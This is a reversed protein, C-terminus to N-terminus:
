ARCTSGASVRGARRAERLPRAMDLSRPFQNSQVGVLMVMGADAANIQDALGEIDVHRIPRMSRRDPRYGLRARVGPPRHLGTGLGYVSALSNSPIPSLKWQIVYGDDDYHSPKVMVLCFTKRSATM